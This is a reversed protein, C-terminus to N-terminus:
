GEFMDLLSVTGTPGDFLYEKEVRVAPLERRRESVDALAKAAQEEAALLEKRAALWEDASVIRPVSM